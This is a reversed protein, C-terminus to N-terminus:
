SPSTVNSIASSDAPDTLKAPAAHRDIAPTALDARSQVPLVITEAQGKPRQGFELRNECGLVDIRQDLAKGAAPEGGPIHRPDDSRPQPAAAILQGIRLHAHHLALVAGHAKRADNGIKQGDREALRFLRA